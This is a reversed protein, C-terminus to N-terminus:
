NRNSQDRTPSSGRQPSRAPRPPRGTRPCQNAGHGTDNCTSCCHKFRCNSALCPYGRQFAYCFGTPFPLIGSQRPRTVTPRSPYATSRSTIPSRTNKNRIFWSSDFDYSSTLNRYMQACAAFPGGRLFKGLDPGQKLAEALVIKTAEIAGDSALYAAMSQTFHMNSVLRNVINQLLLCKSPSAKQLLGFLSDDPFSSVNDNKLRETFEEVSPDSEELVQKLHLLDLQVVFDAISKLGFRIKRRDNPHLPGNKFNYDDAYFRKQGFFTSSYAYSKATNISALSRRVHSINKISPFLSREVQELIPLKFQYPDVNKIDQFKGSNASSSQGLGPDGVSQRLLQTLDDVWRSESPQPTPVPM